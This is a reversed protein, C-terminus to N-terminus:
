QDEIQKHNTNTFYEIHLGINLNSGLVSLTHFAYFVSPNPHWVTTNVAWITFKGCAPLMQPWSHQKTIFGILCSVVLYWCDNVNGTSHPHCVALCWLFKAYKGWHKKLDKKENIQELLINIAKVLIYSKATKKRGTFIEANLNVSVCKHHYLPTHFRGFCHNPSM